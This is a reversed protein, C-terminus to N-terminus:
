AGAPSEVSPEADGGISRIDAMLAGGELEERRSFFYVGLFLYTIMGITSSVGSFLGSVITLIVGLLSNESIPDIVGTGQLTQVIMSPLLVILGVVMTLITAGVLLGFVQWWRGRVLEGSRGFSSTIPASEVLRASYFFSFRVLYFPVFFISAFLVLRGVLPIAMLIFFAITAGIALGILGLNTGIAMSRIARYEAEFEEATPLGMKRFDRREMMRLFAYIAAIGYSMALFLLLLTALMLLVDFAKSGTSFAAAEMMRGQWPNSIKMVQALAHTAYLERLVQAIMFLPLIVRTITPLMVKGHERLLDLTDNLVQAVNRSKELPVTPKPTM